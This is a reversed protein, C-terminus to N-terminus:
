KMIKVSRKRKIAGIGIGGLGFLLMTCPEPVVTGPPPTYSRTSYAGNSFGTIELYPANEGMKYTSGNPLPVLEGNDWLGIPYGPDFELTTYFESTIYNGDAGWVTPSISESGTIALLSLEFEHAGEQFNNIVLPIMRNINTSSVGTTASLSQAIITFDHAGTYSIDGYGGSGHTGVSIESGPYGSPKSQMLLEYGCAMTSAGSSEVNIYVRSRARDIGTGTDFGPFFVSMDGSLMMNLTLDTTGTYGSQFNITWNDVAMAQGGGGHVGSAGLRTMGNALFDGKAMGQAGSPDSNSNQTSAGQASWSVGPRWVDSGFSCVGSQTYPTIAWGSDSALLFSIGFSFVILAQWARRVM